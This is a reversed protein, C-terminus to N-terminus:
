ISRIKEKHKTLQKKLAAVVNDAAEEFTKSQDKAFLEVGPVKVKIEVLKNERESSKSLRLFVEADLINDAYQTLKGVKKNVFDILKQDADFHISHIQINMFLGGIM